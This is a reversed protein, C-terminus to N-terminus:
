LTYINKGRTRLLHTRDTCNKDKSTLHSNELNEACTVVGTIPGEDRKEEGPGSSTLSLLRILIGRKVHDRHPDLLDVPSETAAAARHLWYKGKFTHFADSPRRPKVASSLSPLTFLLTSSLRAVAGGSVQECPEQWEEGKFPKAPQSLWAKAEM